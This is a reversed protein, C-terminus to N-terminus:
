HVGPDSNSDLVFFANKQLIFMTKFSLFNSIIVEGSVDEEGGGEECSKELSHWVCNKERLVKFYFKFSGFTSLFQFPCFSLILNKLFIKIKKSGFNLLRTRPISNLFLKIEISQHEAM